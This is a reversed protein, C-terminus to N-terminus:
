GTRRTIRYWILKRGAASVQEMEVIQGHARLCALFADETYDDFIDERHRLLEQVMPDNKPVFEVVGNPALSVLWDVVYHLPINKTIAL